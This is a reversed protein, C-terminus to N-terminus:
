PQLTPPIASYDRSTASRGENVHHVSCNDMILVSHPSVGDFPRMHSILTSRIFDFFNDGNVTAKTLEVSYGLLSQQFPM